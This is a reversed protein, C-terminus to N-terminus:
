QFMNIIGHISFLGRILLGLLAEILYTLVVLQLCTQPIARLVTELIDLRNLKKFDTSSLSLNPLVLTVVGGGSLIMLVSVDLFRVILANKRLHFIFLRLDLHTPYFLVYDKIPHLNSTKSAM